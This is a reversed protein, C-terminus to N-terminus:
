AKTKNPGMRVWYEKVPFREIIKKDHDNTWTRSRTGPHINWTVTSNDSDDILKVGWTKAAYSEPAYIMKEIAEEHKKKPSKFNEDRPDNGLNTKGVVVIIADANELTSEYNGFKTIFKNLGGKEEATGGLKESDSERIVYLNLM